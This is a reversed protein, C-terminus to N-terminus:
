SLLARVQELHSADHRGLHEALGEISVEGREPHTGTRQWVPHPLARLLVLTDARLRKWEKIVAPLAEERYKLAEALRHNETVWLHPRDQHAIKTFREAYVREMDRLHCAIEVASWKGSAPVRRIAVDGRGRTLARLEEPGRELRDLIAFRTKIAEIQGLHAEDNGLAHRRLFDTMRLRGATEHTGAREWQAGKVKKLLRLCERRLRNWDRLVPALRESRYGRTLACVDGDIDPLAPEQEELIRRYRALYAEGEMDRLHCVIEQISWKGPAPSWLLLARPVGALAQKLRAPTAELVALLPQRERDDM